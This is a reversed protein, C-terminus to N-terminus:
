LFCIFMLFAFRGKTMDVKDTRQGSVFRPRRASPFSLFPSISLDFLASHRLGPPFPPQHFIFHLLPFSSPLSWPSSHTSHLSVTRHQRHFSITTHKNRHQHRHFPPSLLSFQPWSLPAFTSSLSQLALLLLLPTYSYSIHTTITIHTCNATTATISETTPTFLNPLPPSRSSLKKKLINRMYNNM